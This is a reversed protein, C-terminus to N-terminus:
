KVCTSEKIVRVFHMVLLAIAKDSNIRNNPM